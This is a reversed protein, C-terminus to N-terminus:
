VKMSLAGLPALKSPLVPSADGERQLRWCKPSHSFLALTTSSNSAAKSWKNNIKKGRRMTVLKGESNPSLPSHAISPSVCGTTENNIM